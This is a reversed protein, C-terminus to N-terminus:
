MGGPMPGLRDVNPEGDCPPLLMGGPAPCFGEDCAWVCELAGDEGRRAVTRLIGHHDCALYHLGDTWNSGSPTRNRYVAYRTCRACSGETDDECPIPECTTGGCSAFREPPDGDPCAIPRNCRDAPPEGVVCGVLLAAACLGGRMVGAM